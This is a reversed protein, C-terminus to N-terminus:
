IVRSDVFHICSLPPSLAMSTAYRLKIGKGYRERSHEGSSDATRGTLWIDAGVVQAYTADRGEAERCSSSSCPRSSLIRVPFIGMCRPFHSFAVARFLLKIIAFCFLGKSTAPDIKTRRIKSLCKEDATKRRANKTTYKHIQEGTFKNEDM